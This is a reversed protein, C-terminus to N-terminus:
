CITFPWLLQVGSGTASGTADRVKSNQCSAKNLPAAWCTDQIKGGLHGEELTVENRGLAGTLRHICILDHMHLCETFLVAGQAHLDDECIACM